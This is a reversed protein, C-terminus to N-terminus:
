KPHTTETDTLDKTHTAHRDRVSNCLQHWWKTVRGRVSNDSPKKKFGKEVDRTTSQETTYDNIKNEEIGGQTSTHDHTPGATTKVCKFKSGVQKWCVTM